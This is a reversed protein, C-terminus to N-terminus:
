GRARGPASSASAESCHGPSHGVRAGSENRGRASPATTQLSFIRDRIAGLGARGRQSPAQAGHPGPGTISGPAARPDREQAESRGRGTGRPLPGQSSRPIRLPHALRPPGPAPEARLPDWEPEPRPWAQPEAAAAPIRHDGGPGVPLESGRVPGGPNCDPFPASCEVGCDSAQCKGKGPQRVSERETLAQKGARWSAAAELRTVSLLSLRPSQDGRQREAPVARASPSQPARRAMSHGRAGSGLCPPRQSRQHPGPDADPRVSDCLPHLFHPSRASCPAAPRAPRLSAPGQVFVSAGPPRLPSALPSLPRQWLPSQPLSASRQAESRGPARAHSRAASPLPPVARVCRPDCSQM